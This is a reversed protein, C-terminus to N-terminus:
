GPIQFNQFLILNYSEVQHFCVLSGLCDVNDPDIGSKRMLFATEPALAISKGRKKLLRLHRKKGGIQSFGFGTVPKFQIDYDYVPVSVHIM